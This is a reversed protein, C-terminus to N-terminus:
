LALENLADRIKRAEDATVQVDTPWVDQDYGYGAYSQTFTIKVGPEVPKTWEAGTEPKVEGDSYNFGDGDTRLQIATDDNM